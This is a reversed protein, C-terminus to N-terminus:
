CGDDAEEAAAGDEALLRYLSRRTDALIRQAEAQMAADGDRSIQMTASMVGRIAQGM